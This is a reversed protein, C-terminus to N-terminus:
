DAKETARRLTRYPIGALLHLPTQPGEKFSKVARSRGRVRATINGEANITFAKM